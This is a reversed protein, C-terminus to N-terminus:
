PRLRRGISGLPIVEGGKIVRDIRRLNQLDQLPDGNVVLLDAWKGPDISGLDQARGMARAGGLTADVLVQQRTLGANLMLELERHLSPGHLTGINGADTGAAVPIGAATVRKLNDFAVATTAPMTRAYAARAAPSFLRDMDQWSAIVQPDGWQREIDSLRGRGSLVAHYRNFTMLTTTYVVHHEKMLRLFADDVPADDVSHALVDAGAEVAARAVALETAHVIVRVGQPHAVDIVARLLRAQRPISQGPFHIFWFKLYDPHHRLIARAVAQAEDQTNVAIIPPDNLKLESPAYTGILPGSVEVQPALLTQQAQARLRFTWLPGGVDMVGTVGSALYRALTAPLRSKIWAIEQPYPRISRLDIIDPRTYLGGSQFFHVHADILGPLIWKSRVDLQRAGAPIVVQGRRGVTQIRGKEIVVVADQLPQLRPGALVTAGVLALPPAPAAAVAEGHAILLLFGALFLFYHMGNMGVNRGMRVWSPGVALKKM